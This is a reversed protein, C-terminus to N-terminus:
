LSLGWKPSELKEKEYVPYKESRVSLNLNKYSQLLVNGADELHELHDLYLSKMRRKSDLITQM